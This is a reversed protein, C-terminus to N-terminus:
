QYATKEAYISHSLIAFQPSEAWLGCNPWLRNAEASIHLSAQARQEM